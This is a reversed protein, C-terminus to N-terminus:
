VTLPESDTPHTGVVVSVAVNVRVVVWVSVIVGVTVMVGGGESIVDVTVDVSVIVTM